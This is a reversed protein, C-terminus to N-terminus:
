APGFPGECICSNSMGFVSAEPDNIKQPRLLARDYPWEHAEITTAGLSVKLQNRDGCVRRL